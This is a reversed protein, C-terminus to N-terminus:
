TITIECSKSYYPVTEIRLEGTKHYGFSVQYNGPEYAFKLPLVNVGIQWEFYKEDVWEWNTTDKIRAIRLFIPTARNPLQEDILVFSVLSDDWRTVKSIRPCMINKAGVFAYGEYAKISRAGPFSSARNFALTATSRSPLKFNNLTTPGLDSAAAKSHEPIQRVYDTDYNPSYSSIPAETLTLGRSNAAKTSNGMSKKNAAVKELATIRERLKTNEIVAATETPQSRVIVHLPDRETANGSVVVSKQPQTRQWIDSAAFGLAAAVIAWVFRNFNQRSLFKDEAKPLQIEM